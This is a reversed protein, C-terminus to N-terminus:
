SMSNSESRFTTTRVGRRERECVYAFDNVKEGSNALYLFSRFNCGGIKLFEYDM